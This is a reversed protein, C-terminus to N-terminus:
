EHIIARLHGDADAGLAVRQETAARGGVLRFVGERSLALKVPRGVQRAALVCLLTNLWVSGKGGFGGGVFPGCVQVRDPKLGFVIALTGRVGNVHQTSDFVVLKGDEEFTAISSHPELANHNYYPTHYLNDIYYASKQLEKEADGVTVEAPETLIAAPTKAHQKGAEFATHAEAREYEATVLAAAHEAAEQTDAVVLAIPQGNWYIDPGQLVPVSGAAAGRGNGDAHFLPPKALKPSNEHTIVALVGAAALARSTDLRTIKGKAITSYALAAFCINDLQYEASFIAGGTVKLPGDVRSIPQGIYTNQQQILKDPQRDPMVQVITELLKTKLSM